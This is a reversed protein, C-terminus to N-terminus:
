RAVVKSSISDRLARTDLLPTDSGKLQVYRKNMNKAWKGFGATNFAEKVIGEGKAGIKEYVSKLNGETIAKMVGEKDAELMETIENGKEEMPMKLFSRKPLKTITVQENKYTFTKESMSGFEHAIAIDVNSQGDARSEHGALVGVKAIYNEKLGEQM